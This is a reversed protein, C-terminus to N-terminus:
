VEMSQRLFKKIMCLEFSKFFLPLREKTKGESKSYYMILAFELFFQEKGEIKRETKWSFTSFFM